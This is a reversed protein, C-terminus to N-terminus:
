IRSNNRKRGLMQDVLALLGAASGDDTSTLQVPQDNDDYLGLTWGHHNVREWALLDDKDNALMRRDGPLVIEISECGGGTDAIGVLYKHEALLSLVDAYECSTDGVVEASAAPANM